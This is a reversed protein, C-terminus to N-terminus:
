KKVELTTMLLRRGDTASKEEQLSVDPNLLLRKKSSHSTLSLVQSNSCCDHSRNDEGSENFLLVDSANENNEMNMPVVSSGSSDLHLGHNGPNELHLSWEQPFKDVSAEGDSKEDTRSALTSLFDQLITRGTLSATAIPEDVRGYLDNSSNQESNHDYANGQEM